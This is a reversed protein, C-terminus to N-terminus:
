KGVAQQFQGFDALDVSGSQDLDVVSCCTDAYLVPVCPPADCPGTLCGALGPLDDVTVAGDGNWDGPVTIPPLQIAVAEPASLALDDRFQVAVTRAHCPADGDVAADFFVTGSDKPHSSVVRINSIEIGPGLGVRVRDDVLPIDTVALRLLQYTEGRVLESFQPVVTGASIRGDPHLDYRDSLRFMTEALIVATRPSPPPPPEDPDDPDPLYGTEVHSATSEDAELRVVVQYGGPLVQQGASNFVGTYLGDGAHQDPGTGDDVLPINWTQGRHRVRAQAQINTVLAGNFMNAELVVPEDLPARRTRTGAGGFVEEHEIYGHWAISVNHPGTCIFDTTWARATWTGAEPNLVHATSYEADISADVAEPTYLVGSPSELELDLFSFECLGGSALQTYRNGLWVFHMATAGGPVHFLREVPPALLGVDQPLEALDEFIQVRSTLGYHMRTLDSKLEHPNPEDINASDAGGILATGAGADAIDQLDDRDADGFALTHVRIGHELWATSAADVPDCGTNDKGDSFLRINQNGGNGQTTIAQTAEQIALCIDTSGSPDIELSTEEGGFPGYPIPWPDAVEDNFQVVGSYEGPVTKNYFLLAADSALRIAETGHQDAYAMSGSSDLLLVADNIVNEPDLFHCTVLEPPDTPPLYSGEQHSLDSQTSVAEAWCSYSEGAPNHFDPWDENTFLHNSGDCWHGVYRDAMACTNDGEDVCISAGRLVDDEDYYDVYEDDLGYITHGLEHALIFGLNEAPQIFGDFVEDYMSVRGKGPDCYFAWYAVARGDERNWVVDSCSSNEQGGPDVLFTVEGLWHQRNTHQWLFRNCAQMVTCYFLQQAADPLPGDSEFFAVTISMRGNEDIEYARVIAPLLVLCSVLVAILFESRKM